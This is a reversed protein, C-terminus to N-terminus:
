EIDRAVYKMAEIDDDFIPILRKLGVVDWLSRLCQLTRGQALLCLRQNPFRKGLVAGGMYNGFRYELERYDVVIGRPHEREVLVQIADRIPKGQTNGDSGTAAVGSIKVRWYGDEIPVCEISLPHNM